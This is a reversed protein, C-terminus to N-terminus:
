ELNFMRQARRPLENGDNVGGSRNQPDLFTANANWDWGLWQSGLVLEVGRIRAEDINFPVYLGQRTTYTILSDIDTRY